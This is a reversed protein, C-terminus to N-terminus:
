RGLQKQMSQNIISKPMNKKEITRTVNQSQGGAVNTKRGSATLRTGGETDDELLPNDNGDSEDDILGSAEEQIKSLAGNGTALKILADKVYAMNTAAANAANELNTSAADAANGLNTSAADALDATSPIDAITPPTWHSHPINFRAWRPGGRREDCKTVEGEYDYSKSNTQVLKNDKWIYNVETYIKM